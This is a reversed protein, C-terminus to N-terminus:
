NWVLLLSFVPAHAWHAAETFLLLTLSRARWRWSQEADKKKQRGESM